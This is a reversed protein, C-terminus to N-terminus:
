GFGLTAVSFTVPIGDRVYFGALSTNEAASNFKLDATLISTGGVPVSTPNASTGLVLWPVAYDPLNGAMTDCGTTGPGGNCGWWNNIALIGLGTNNQVGVSNGAIRNHHFDDLLSQGIPGQFIVGVNNSTFDNGVVHSTDLYGAGCFDVTGIPLDAPDCQYILLGADFGNPAGYIHNGSVDVSLINDGPVPGTIPNTGIGADIEIGFTKTNSLSGTYKIDNNKVAVSVPAGTLVANLALPDVPSLTDKSRDTVLIGYVNQGPNNVTGPKFVEIQNGSIERYNGVDEDDNFYM